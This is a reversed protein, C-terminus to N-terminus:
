SSVKEKEYANNHKLWERWYAIERKIEAISAKNKAIQIKMLNKRHEEDKINEFPRLVEKTFEEENIGELEKKM